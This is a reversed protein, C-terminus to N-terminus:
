AYIEQTENHTENVDVDLFICQNGSILIKVLDSAARLVMVDTEASTIITPDYCLHELDFVQNQEISKTIIEKTKAIARNKLEEVGDDGIYQWM